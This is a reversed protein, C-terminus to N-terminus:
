HSNKEKVNTLERIIGDLIKLKISGIGIVKCSANNGMMVNGGDYSKYATFLHKNPCM